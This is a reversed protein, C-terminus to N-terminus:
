PQNKNGMIRQGLGKLVKGADEIKNRSTAVDLGGEENERIAYMFVFDAGPKPFVELQGFRLDNMILTGSEGETITYFHNTIKKLRRVKDKDAWKDILAHNKEFFVFDINKDSDLFSYYGIYFGNEVEANVTWLITNFPAPKTEYREFPINQAQMAQEFTQNVIQKAVVTWLLYGTSIALAWYNLTRRRQSARPLRMLWILLIMFPVTYLPDIVFVSKFAVPYDSFPYFLQTGWTTFCDLLAHTVFGWFFLHTWAWFHTGQARYFYQLIQGLVPSVLFAFLLSHTLSRHWEIQTVTDLLPNLLVDLDPITGAIAGWLLAKNGIKKGLILEGVSAGLVIQTLSDM